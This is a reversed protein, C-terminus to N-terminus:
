KQWMSKLKKNFDIYESLAVFHSFIVWESKVNVYDMVITFTLDLHTIKEFKEDNESFRFKVFYFQIAQIAIFNLFHKVTAAM